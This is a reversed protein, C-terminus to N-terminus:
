RRFLWDTHVQVQVGVLLCTMNLPQDLETRCPNILPRIRCLCVKNDQAVRVAVLEAHDVMWRQLRTGAQASGHWIRLASRAARGTLGHGMARIFSDPEPVTQPGSRAIAALVAAPSATRAVPLWSRRIDPETRPLQWRFPYQSSVPSNTPAKRRAM